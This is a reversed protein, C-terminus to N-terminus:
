ADAVPPARSLYVQVFSAARSTIVVVDPAADSSAGTAWSPHATVLGGGIIAAAAICMDCHSSRAAHKESSSESTGSVDHSLSHWTAAVQAMPLLFALWMLWAVHRRAEIRPSFAQM